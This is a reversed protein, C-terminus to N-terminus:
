RAVVHAYGLLIPVWIAAVWGALMLWTGRENITVAQWAFRGTVAAVIFLMALALLHTEDM